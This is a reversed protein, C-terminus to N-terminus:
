HSLIRKLQKLYVSEAKNKGEFAEAIKLSTDYIHKRMGADILKSHEHLYDQFDSLIDESDIQNAEMWDFVIEIQFASDTGFEDTHKEFPVWEDRVVQRLKKVEESRVHRDSAAIGYFLKGLEQYLHLYTRTSNEM